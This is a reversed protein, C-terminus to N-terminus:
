RNKQYEKIIEEKSTQGVHECKEINMNIGCIPCLGKCDESCLPKMPTSLLILDHFPPEFDILNNIILYDKDEENKNIDSTEYENAKKFEYNFESIFHRTFSTLCRACSLKLDYELRGKSKCANGDKKICITAKINDEVADIHVDNKNLVIYFEEGELPLKEINFQLKMFGINPYFPQKDVEVEWYANM